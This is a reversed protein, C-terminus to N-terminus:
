LTSSDVALTLLSKEKQAIARIKYYRMGSTSANHIIIHETDNVDNDMSELITYIGYEESSGLLEYRDTGDLNTTFTFSINDADVRAAILDRPIEPYEVHTVVYREIQYPWPTDMRLDADDMIVHEGEDMGAKLDGVDNSDFHLKFDLFRGIDYRNEKFLTDRANMSFSRNHTDGPKIVERLGMQVSPMYEDSYNLIDERFVKFLVLYNTQAEKSEDMLSLLINLQMKEAILEEPLSVIFRAPSIMWDDYLKKLSANLNPSYRDQIDFEEWGTALRVAEKMSRISLDSSLLRRFAGVVDRYKFRPLLPGSEIDFYSGWKKEIMSNDVQIDFAHLEGVQREESLIFEPLLFMRNNRIFYDDYLVLSKEDDFRVKLVMDYVIPVRSGLESFVFEEYYGLKNLESIKEELNSMQKIKSAEARSYVASTADIKSYKITSLTPVGELSIHKRLYTAEQWLALFSQIYANLIREYSSDMPLHERYFSTMYEVLKEVDKEFM